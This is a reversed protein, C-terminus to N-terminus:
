LYKYNGFATDPNKTHSKRISIIPCICIFQSKSKSKQLSKELRISHIYEASGGLTRNM